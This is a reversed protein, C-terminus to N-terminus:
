KSAICTRIYVYVILGLQLTPAYAYLLLVKAAGSPQSFAIACVKYTNLIDTMGPTPGGVGLLEIHTTPANVSHNSYNRLGIVECRCQCHM